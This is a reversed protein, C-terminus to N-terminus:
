GLVEDMWHFYDAHGDVVPVVQIEPVDYSHHEILFQKLADVKDARTKIILKCETDEVVNGQWEYISHVNNLLNVCSALKNQVIQTALANAQQENGTTTFVLRYKCQEMTTRMDNIDICDISHLTFLTRM